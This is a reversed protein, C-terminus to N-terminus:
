PRIVEEFSADVQDGLHTSSRIKQRLNAIAARTERDFKGTEAVVPMGERRLKDNLGRQFEKIRDARSAAPVGYAGVEYSNKFGTGSCSPVENTAKNLAVRVERDVTQPPSLAGTGAFFNRIAVRTPSGVPGLRGTAPAVCLAVQIAEIESSLMQQETQTLRTDEPPPPPATRARPLPKVPDSILVDPLDRRTIPLRGLNVTEVSFSGPGRRVPLATTSSIQKAIEAEIRPPRCLDLYQQILHYAATPTRARTAAAGDRFAQQLKNVYEETTAPPLRYLYSGAALETATVGFGFAQAIVGLSVASAGTIAAIAATTQGFSGLVAKAREKRRELLFLESFYARCEDDIFNFGAEAVLHWDPSGDLSVYADQALASLLRTRNDSAREVAAADLVPGLGNRRDVTNCAAM